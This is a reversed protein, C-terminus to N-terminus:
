PSVNVMVDGVGLVGPVNEYLEPVVDTTVMFPFVAVTTPLPVDRMVAVKVGSSALLKM